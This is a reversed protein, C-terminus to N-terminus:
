EGTLNTPDHTIAEEVTIIILVGVTNALVGIEVTTVGRMTLDETIITIVPVTSDIIILHLVLDVIIHLMEVTGADEILGHIRDM